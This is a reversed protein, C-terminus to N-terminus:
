IVTLFPLAIDFSANSQLFSFSVREKFNNNMWDFASVSENYYDANGDYRTWYDFSGAIEDLWNYTYNGEIENFYNFTLYEIRL